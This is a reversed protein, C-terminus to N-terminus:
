VTRLADASAYDGKQTAQLRRLIATRRAASMADREKYGTPDVPGMTPNPRGGGYVRNGVAYPAIAAQQRDLYAM